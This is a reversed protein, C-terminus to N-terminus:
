WCRSALTALLTASGPAVIHAPTLPIGLLEFPRSVALDNGHKFVTYPSVLERKM